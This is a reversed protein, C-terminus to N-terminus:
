KIKRKIEKEKMWVNNINKKRKKEGGCAYEKGEGQRWRQSKKISKKISKKKVLSSDNQGSENWFMDNRQERERSEEVCEAVCGVGVRKKM